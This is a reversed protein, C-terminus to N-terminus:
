YVMVVPKIKWLTVMTNYEHGFINIEKDRLLLGPNHMIAASNLCNPHFILTPVQPTIEKMKMSEPKHFWAVVNLSKWLTLSQYRYCLTWQMCKLKKKEQKWQSQKGLGQFLCAFHVANSDRKGLRTAKQFITYSTTTPWTELRVQHHNLARLKKRRQCHTPQIQIILPWSNLPLNFYLCFTCVLLMIQLHSLLNEWHCHICLLRSRKKYVRRSWAKRSIWWTFNWVVTVFATEEGNKFVKGDHLEYVIIQISQKIFYLSWEHILFM